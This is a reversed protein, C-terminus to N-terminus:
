LRGHITSHNIAIVVAFIATVGLLERLIDARTRTFFICALLTIGLLAATKFYREEPPTLISLVVIQVFMTGAWFFTSWSIQERTRHRLWVRTTASALIGALVLIHLEERTPQFRIAMWGFCIAGIDKIFTDYANLWSLLKGTLSLVQIDQVLNLLGVAGLAWGFYQFLRTGSKSLSNDNM